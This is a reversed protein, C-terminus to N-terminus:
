PMDSLAIMKKWEKDKEMHTDVDNHMCKLPHTFRLWNKIDVNDKNEKLGCLMEKKLLNLHVILKRCLRFHKCMFSKMAESDDGTSFKDLM